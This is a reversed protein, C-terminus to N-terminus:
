EMLYFLIQLLMLTLKPSPLSDLDKGQIKLMANKMPTKGFRGLYVSYQGGCMATIQFSGGGIDWVVAKDLDVDAESVASIFGLVGEEEQSVITVPVGTENEIRKVLEDRNKALRLGETAIAHYAEPSFYAAKKILESIVGVTKNQIEVSLRGDLSNALNERLGVYMADTLLVNIIKNSTIDVDSVQMKIQGSGIDFAARRM